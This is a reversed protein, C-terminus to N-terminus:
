VEVNLISTDVAISDVIDSSLWGIFRESVCVCACVDLVYMSSTMSMMVSATLVIM